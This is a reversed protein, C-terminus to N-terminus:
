QSFHQCALRQRTAEGNFTASPGVACGLNVRARPVTEIVPLGSRDPVHGGGMYPVKPPGRLLTPCSILRLSRQPHQQHTIKADPGGNPRQPANPPRQPSARLWKPENQLSIKISIEYTKFGQVFISLGLGSQIVEGGFVIFWHIQAHLYVCSSM